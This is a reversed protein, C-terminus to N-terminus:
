DQQPSSKKADLGAARRCADVLVLIAQRHQPPLGDLWDRQFTFAPFIASADVLAMTDSLGFLYNASISYRECFARIFAISPETRGTEYFGYASRSIQFEQAVQGQTLGLAKRAELLREAFTQSSSSM